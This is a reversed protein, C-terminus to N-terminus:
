AAKLVAGEGGFDRILCRQRSERRRPFSSLSSYDRGVRETVGAFVPTRRAVHVLSVDLVVGEFTCACCFWCCFLPCRAGM